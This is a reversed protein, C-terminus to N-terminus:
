QSASSSAYARFWLFALVLSIIVNWGAISVGFLAWPITDCAVVNLPASFDLLGEGSSLGTGTCSAPGQWWKQEVGAHYFGIGAGSLVALGALLALLRHPLFYLILGLAVAIGHPWRQWICLKCPTMGGIYQFAFAGLLLAASGAAALM